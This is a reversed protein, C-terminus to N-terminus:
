IDLRDIPVVRRKKDDRRLVTERHVQMGGPADDSNNDDDAAAPAEAEPAKRKESSKNQHRRGFSRKHLDQADAVSKSAGMEAKIANWLVQSPRRLKHTCYYSFDGSTYTGFEDNAAVVERQVTAWQSKAAAASAGELYRLVALADKATLDVRERPAAAEEATAQRTAPRAPPPAGPPPPAPDGEDNHPKYMALPRLEACSGHRRDLSDGARLRELPHLFFRGMDDRVLKRCCCGCIWRQSGDGGSARGYILGDRRGQEAADRSLALPEGTGHTSHEQMLEERQKKTFDLTEPHLDDLGKHDKLPKCREVLTAWAKGLGGASVTIHVTAALRAVEKLPTAADFAKDDFPDVLKFRGSSPNVVAVRPPSALQLTLKKGDTDLAWRWVSTASIRLEYPEAADKSTGFEVAEKAYDFRISTVGTAGHTKTDQFVVGGDSASSLGFEVPEPAKPKDKKNRMRFTFRDHDGLTERLTAETEVDHERLAEDDDDELAATSAQLDRDRSTELAQRREARQRAREYSVGSDLKSATEPFVRSVYDLKAVADRLFRGVADQDEIRGRSSLDHLHGSVVLRMAWHHVEVPHEAAHSLVLGREAFDAALFPTCNRLVGMTFTLFRQGFNDALWEHSAAILKHASKQAEKYSDFDTARLFARSPIVLEKLWRLIRKRNRETFGAGGDKQEAIKWIESPVLDETYHEVLTQVKGTKLDVDVGWATPEVYLALGTKNKVWKAWDVALGVRSYLWALPKLVEAIYVTGFQHLPGHHIRVLLGDGGLHQLDINQGGGGGVFEVREDISLKNWADITLNPLALHTFALTKSDIHNAIFLPVTTPWMPSRAKLTRKCMSLAQAADVTAMAAELSVAIHGLPPMDEFKGCTDELGNEVLDRLMREYTNYNENRIACRRTDDRLHEHYEEAHDQGNWVAGLVCNQYRKSLLGFWSLGLLAVSWMKKLGGSKHIKGADVERWIYLTSAGGLQKLERYIVERTSRTNLMRELQHRLDFTVSVGWRGGYHVGCREFVASKHEEAIPKFVEWTPMIDVNGPLSENLQRAIADYVGAKIDTLMTMNYALLQLPAKLQRLLREEAAQRLAGGQYEDMMQLLVPSLGMDALLHMLATMDADVSEPLADADDDEEDFDDPGDMKQPSAPTLGYDSTQTLSQQTSSFPPPAGSTYDVADSPLDAVSPDVVEPFARTRTPRPAGAAGAAFHLVARARLNAAKPGVNALGKRAMADGADYCMKETDCLLLIKGLAKGLGDVGHGDVRDAAARLRRAVLERVDGDDALADDAADGENTHGGSPPNPSLSMRDDVRDAAARLRGAVRDRVDRDGALAADAADGGDSNGGSPPNPTLSMRSVGTVLAGTMLGAAAGAETDSDSWNMALVGPCCCYFISVRLLVSLRELDPLDPLALGLVVYFMAVKSFRCSAWVFLLLAGCSVGFNMAASM